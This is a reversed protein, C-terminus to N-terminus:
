GGRHCGPRPGGAAAPVARLSLVGHLNIATRHLLQMGTHEACLSILRQLAPLLGEADLTVLCLARDATRVVRELQLGDRLEGWAIALPPPPGTGAPTRAVRRQMLDDISAASLGQRM